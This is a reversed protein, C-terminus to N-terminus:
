KSSVAHVHVPVDLQHHLARGVGGDGKHSSGKVPLGRRRGAGGRAALQGVRALRPAVQVAEVRAEVCAAGLLAPNDDLEVLYTLLHTLLHTLPLRALRLAHYSVAGRHTM